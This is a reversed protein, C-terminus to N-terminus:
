HAAVHTSDGSREGLHQTSDVQQKRGVEEAILGMDQEGGVECHGRMGGLPTARNLVDPWRLGGVKMIHWCALKSRVEVIPKPRFHIGERTRKDIVGAPLFVAKV